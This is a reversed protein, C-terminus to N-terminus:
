SGAGAPVLEPASAKAALANQVTTLLRDPTFPKPLFNVGEKLAHGNAMVDPSYGSSYVVRLDPKRRLLHRALMLGGVGEPMVM